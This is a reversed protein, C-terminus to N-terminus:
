AVTVMQDELPVLNSNEFRPSHRHAPRNCNDFIVTAPSRRFNTQCPKQPTPVLSAIRPLFADLRPLRLARHTDMRVRHVRHKHASLIQDLRGCGDRGRGGRLECRLAGRGGRLECRLAGCGGRLECRRAVGRGLASEGSPVHKSSQKM